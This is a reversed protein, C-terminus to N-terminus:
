NLAAQVTANVSIVPSYVTCSPTTPATFTGSVTQMPALGLGDSNAKVYVTFNAGNPILYVPVNHPGNVSAVLSNAMTVNVINASCVVNDGTITPEVDKTAASSHETLLISLGLLCLILIIIILWKYKSLKTKPKEINQNEM